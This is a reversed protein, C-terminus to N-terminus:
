PKDGFGPLSCGGTYMDKFLRRLAAVIADLTECALGTPLDAGRGVTFQPVDSAERWISLSCKSALM